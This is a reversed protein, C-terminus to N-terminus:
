IGRQPLPLQCLADHTPIAILGALAIGIADSISVISMAFKMRNAPIENTMKYYTNVYAAGGLLGEWLVVCFVIWICPSIFTIVETLLLLINVFQFVSMLWIRRIQFMNVSSRSIFVGIQYDFQLWRYQSRKDLWINRFDILEFLGQNIFYEFLYVGCLPMMYYLVLSPMYRIKDSLTFKEDDDESSIEFSAESEKKAMSAPKRLLLWFAAAEIIPIGLMIKISTESSVGLLTLAAYSFSGLVGAGGTGSSWASIVSRGISNKHHFLNTHTLHIRLIDFVDFM